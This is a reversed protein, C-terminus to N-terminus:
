TSLLWCWPQERCLRYGEDVSTAKERAFSRLWSLTVVPWVAVEAAVCVMWTIPERSVFVLATFAANGVVELLNALGRFTPVVFRAYSMVLDGFDARLSLTSFLIQRLMRRVSRELTRTSMLLWCRLVDLMLLFECTITSIAPDICVQQDVSTYLHRYEGLSRQVLKWRSNWNLWGSVFELMEPTFVDGDLVFDSNWDSVTLLNHGVEGEVDHLIARWNEAFAVEVWKVEM